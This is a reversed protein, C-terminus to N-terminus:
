GRRWGERHAVHAEPLLRALAELDQNIIESPARDRPMTFGKPFPPCRPHRVIASLDNLTLLRGESVRFAEELVQFLLGAQELALRSFDLAGDPDLGLPHPDHYPLCDNISPTLSHGPVRPEKISWGGVFPIVASERVVGRWHPVV